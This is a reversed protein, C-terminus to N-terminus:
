NMPVTYGFCIVQLPIRGPSTIITKWYSWVFLVFFVHYFLIYVVLFLLADILINQQDYESKQSFDTCAGCSPTLNSQGWFPTLKAYFNTLLFFLKEFPTIKVRFISNVNM